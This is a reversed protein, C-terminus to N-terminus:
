SLKSALHALMQVPRSRWKTAPDDSDRRSGYEVAWEETVRDGGVARQAVFEPVSWNGSAKEVLPEVDLAYTTRRIPVLVHEGRLLSSAYNVLTSLSQRRAEKARFESM